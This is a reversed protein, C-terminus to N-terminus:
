PVPIARSEDAALVHGGGYGTEEWLERRAAELPPNRPRTLLEPACNSACAAFATATNGKLM